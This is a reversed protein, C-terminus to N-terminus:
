LATSQQQLFALTSALIEAVQRRLQFPAMGLPASSFFIAIVVLTYTTARLPSISTVVSLLLHRQTREHLQTSLLCNFLQVVRLSSPESPGGQCQLNDEVTTAKKQLEM